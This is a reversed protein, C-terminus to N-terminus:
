AGCGPLREASGLVTRGNLESADAAGARGLQSHVASLSSGRSSGAATPRRFLEVM